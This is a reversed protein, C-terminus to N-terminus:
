KCKCKKVPKRKPNTSSKKKRDMPYGLEKYYSSDIISDVVREPDQDAIEIYKEALDNTTVKQKVAKRVLDSYVEGDINELYNSIINVLKNENKKNIM